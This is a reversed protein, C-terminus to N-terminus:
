EKALRRQEVIPLLYNAFQILAATEQAQFEVNRHSSPNKFMGIAGAFLFMMAQREGGEKTKDTLPGTDSHFAKQMLAVGIEGHSYGGADRVRVELEKFATFVATDYDGRRFVPVVKAALAPDLLEEHLLEGRRYADLESHAKFRQGRRTVFVWDMPTAGPRPAIMGERLLWMWAESVAEAVDPFRGGAYALLPGSSLTLNSLNLMQDRKPLENLYELLFGALEEPELALLVDPSPIIEEIRKPM